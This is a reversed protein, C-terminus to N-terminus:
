FKEVNSSYWDVFKMLVQIQEAQKNAVTAIMKLQSRIGDVEDVTRKQVVSVRNNVEAVLQEALMIDAKGDLAAQSDAKFRKHAASTLESVETLVEVNQLLEDIKSGKERIAKNLAELKQLEELPRAVSAELFTADVKRVLSQDISAVKTEFVEKKLLDKQGERFEEIQDELLQVRDRMKECIGTLQEVQTACNDIIPVEARDIKCSLLNQMAALTSNLNKQTESLKAFRQNDVFKLSLSMTWKSLKSDVERIEDRTEKERAQFHEVDGRLTDILKANEEIYRGVPPFEANWKEEIKRCRDPLGLLSDLDSRLLPIQPDQIVSTEEVHALRGEITDLRNEIKTFLSEFRGFNFVDALSM